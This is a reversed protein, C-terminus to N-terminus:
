LMLRAQRVREIQNLEFATDTLFDDFLMHSIQSKVDKKFTEFDEKWERSCEFEQIWENSLFRVRDEIVQDDGFQDKVEKDTRCITIENIRQQVEGIIMTSTPNCKRKQNKFGVLVQNLTDFILNNFIQQEEKRDSASEVDIFLSGDIEISECHNSAWDLPKCRRLIENIYSEIYESDARIQSANVESLIGISENISKEVDHQRLIIAARNQRLDFLNAADGFLNSVMESLIDISILSAKERMEEINADQKEIENHESEDNSEEKVSVQLFSLSEEEDMRDLSSKYTEVTEV